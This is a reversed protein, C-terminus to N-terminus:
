GIGSLAARLKLAIERAEAAPDSAAVLGAGAFATAAAGRLLVARIGVALEGGGRGDLWGVGGAYWGRDFGEVARALDLAAGRPVGGLAPTPHLVAAATLIDLGAPAAADFPTELHQVTALRRLRPASPHAADVGLRRLADAIADVVMAHEARDKASALLAAGLARDVAPDPDRRASGALAMTAARGDLVRVLREPSAGVFAAPAPAGHHELEGSDQDRVGSSVADGAPQVLFHFCGPQVARLRDLVRAPDCATATTTSWATALVVKRAEGRSIAAVVREIRAALAPDAADPDPWAPSRDPSQDRWPPAAAPAPDPRTAVAVPPAAAALVTGEVLRRAIARAHDALDAAAGALDHDAATITLWADGGRRTLTVAPLVFCAPPFGAWPSAPDVDDGFAFGGLWRPSPPADDPTRGPGIPADFVVAACRRRVVEFRDPGAAAVRCTAGYAAAVVPDDPASWFFRPAGAPALDLLARPDIAQGAIGPLRAHWVRIPRAIIPDPDLDTVATSQLRFPPTTAASCRRFPTARLPASLTVCATLTVADFM